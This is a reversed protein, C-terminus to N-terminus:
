THEIEDVKVPLEACEGEIGVIRGDKRSVVIEKM